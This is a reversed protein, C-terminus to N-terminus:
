SSSLHHKPYCNPYRLERACTLLLVIFYNLVSALIGVTDYLSGDSIFVAPLKGWLSNESFMAKLFVDEHTTM